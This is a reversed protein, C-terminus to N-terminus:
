EDQNRYLPSGGPYLEQVETVNVFEPDARAHAEFITTMQDLEGKAVAVSRELAENEERMLELQKMKESDKVSQKGRFKKVAINNKERKEHYRGACVTQAIGM